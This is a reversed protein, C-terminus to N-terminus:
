ITIVYSVEEEHETMGVALESDSNGVDYQSPHRSEGHHQSGVACSTFAFRFGVRFIEALWTKGMYYEYCAAGEVQM